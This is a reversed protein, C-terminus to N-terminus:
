KTTTEALPVSAGVAHVVATKAGLGVIVTEAEVDVIVTAVRAVPAATEVAVEV